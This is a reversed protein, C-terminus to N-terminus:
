FVLTQAVYAKIHKTQEYFIIKTKQCVNQFVSRKKQRECWCYIWYLFSFSEVYTLM